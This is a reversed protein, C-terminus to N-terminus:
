PKASAADLVASLLRYVAESQITPQQGRAAREAKIRAIRAAHQDDSLCRAQNATPAVPKPM